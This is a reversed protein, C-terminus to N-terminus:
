PRILEATGGQNDTARGSKPEFLGQVLIVSHKRLVKSM